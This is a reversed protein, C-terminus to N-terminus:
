LSFFSHFKWHLYKEFTEHMQSITVSDIPKIILEADLCAESPQNWQSLLELKHEPSEISTLYFLKARNKIFLLQESTIVQPLTEWINQLANELALGDNSMFGFCLSGTNQLWESHVLMEDLLLASHVAQINHQLTQTLYCEWLLMAWYNDSRYSCGSFGLLFYSHQRFNNEVFPQYCCPQWLRLEKKKRTPKTAHRSVLQAVAFHGVAGLACLMMRDLSYHTQIWSHLDSWQIQQIHETVGTIPNAIPHEPFCNRYFKRQLCEWPDQEWAHVEALLSQKEQEFIADSITTIQPILLLWQLAQQYFEPLTKIYFVTYEKTTYANTVSGAKTFGDITESLKQAESYLVHEALHAIGQKSPPDDMSGVSVFLGITVVPSSSSTEILVQLDNCVSKKIQNM